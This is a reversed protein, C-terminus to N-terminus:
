EGHFLEDLPGQCNILHSNGKIVCIKDYDLLSNLIQQIMFSDRFINLRKSIKNTIKEKINPNFWNIYCKNIDFNERLVKEFINKFNEFSYDYDGWESFKKFDGIALDIVEKKTFSLQKIWISLNRLVFYLFTIDKEYLLKIFNICDIESPDNGILDIKKEKAFYSVFGTEWGKHIAEKEDSFVANEFGGEILIVEPSFNILEKKIKNIQELDSSHITGLFVIKKSNLEFNKIILM